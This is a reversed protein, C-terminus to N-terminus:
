REDRTIHEQRHYPYDDFIVLDPVTMESAGTIMKRTEPRDGHLVADIAVKGVGPMDPIAM